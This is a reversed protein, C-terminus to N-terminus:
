ESAAPVLVRKWWAGRSEAEEIRQFLRQDFNASVPLAHWEDLAAWVAEQAAVLKSCEACSEIHRQFAATTDPELTRAGYGVILEASEGSDLPCRM